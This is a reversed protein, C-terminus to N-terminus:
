NKKSLDDIGNWIDLYMKWDKGIKKWVIVHKGKVSVIKGKDNIMQIEYYGYEYAIKKAIRIEEIIVDLKNIEANELFSWFKKLDKTGEIIDTRNPFIKGDPTYSEVVKQSEGNVYYQNFRERTKLIKQIEKRKGHYEQSFSNISFLISIILCTSIKPNLM